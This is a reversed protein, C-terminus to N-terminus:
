PDVVITCVVTEPASENLYTNTTDWDTAATTDATGTNTCSITASTEGSGGDRFNVQLDYLPANTFTATNLSTSDCGGAVAVVTVNTQSAGGYGNPAATENVTYTAGPVLGSVCIGGISADEDPAAATEDDTVSFDPTSGADPGDVSFQAGANSVAGGKTSNKAIRIAGCSVTIQADDDGSGANTSTFAATNDYLGCSAGTTPSTLHVTLTGGGAALTVASCTLSESPPSGSITCTGSPSQSAISWDVGSGAPLPNDTLVVGTADAAGTNTVTITFGIQSGANVSTADATKVITVSPAKRVKWEEFGGESKYTDSGVTDLSGWESYLVFWDTADFAQVPVLYLLDGRGSGSNVDNIKIEGNFEYQLTAESSDFPYGTINPNETFYIEVKTLSIHKANNGENIDNFIEWCRETTQTDGDTECDVQPIASAKIAHTWSGPKTQFETVDGGCPNQQSCTNYGKETPATSLSGQVRVFPDFLGTGSVGNVPDDKGIYQVYASGVDGLRVLPSSQTSNAVEINYTGTDSVLALVGTAGGILAIVAGLV